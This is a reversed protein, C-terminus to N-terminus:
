AMVPGALTTGFTAAPDSTPVRREPRPDLKKAACGPHSVIDGAEPEFSRRETAVARCPLFAVCYRVRYVTEPPPVSWTMGTFSWSVSLGMRLGLFDLYIMM